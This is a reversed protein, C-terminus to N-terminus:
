KIYKILQDKPNNGALVIIKSSQMRELKCKEIEHCLYVVEAGAASAEYATQASLTIIRSSTSIIEMYSEAEYQIPFIPHLKEEYAHYFYEGLLLEIGLGSFLDKEKSLRKEPDSDGYFLVSRERKKSKKAHHYVSDVLPDIHIINEGYHSVDECSNAICSVVEFMEVYLELKGRDDEPTDIILTDGRQAVSDIDWVTQIVTCSEVGLERAVQAARFDNTLMEVEIGQTRLGRYYVAMRRIRDLGYKHNSYAYIYTM